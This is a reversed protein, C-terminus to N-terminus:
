RHRRGSPEPVYAAVFLGNVFASCLRHLAAQVLMLFAFVSFGYSGESFGKHEKLFFINKFGGLFLM